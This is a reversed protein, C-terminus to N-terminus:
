LPLAIEMNDEKITRKREKAGKVEKGSSMHQYRGYVM